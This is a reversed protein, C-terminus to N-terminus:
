PNGQPHWLPPDLWAVEPPCRDAAPETANFYVRHSGSQRDLVFGDRELAAVLVRMPIPVGRLAPPLRM